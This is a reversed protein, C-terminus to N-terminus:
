FKAYLNILVVLKDFILENISLQKYLLEIKRIKQKKSGYTRFSSFKILNKPLWALHRLNPHRDSYQCVCVPFINKEVWFSGLSDVVLM